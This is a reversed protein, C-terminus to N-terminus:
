ILDLYEGRLREFCEVERQKKTELENIFEDVAQMLEDVPGGIEM